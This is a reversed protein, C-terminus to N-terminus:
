DNGEGWIALKEGCRELIMDPIRPGPSCGPIHITEPHNRYKEPACDGIVFYPGAKLHEEFHVDHANFGIMFTPRGNKEVIKEWLGEKEWFLAPGIFWVFCGPCMGGLIFNCPFRNYLVEVPKEIKIAIDQIDPGIVTINNRLIEGHGDLYATWPFLLENKDISLLESAISDNAVPDTAAILVGLFRPTCLDPGDGEGVIIADTFCLQEPLLKHLESVLKPLQSQHYALRTEQQIFGVWNKTAATMAGLRHTKLKAFNIIYDADLAKKPISIESLIDSHPFPVTIRENPDDINVLKGGAAKIAKGMGTALLADESPAFGASSDGVYIEEVGREKLISILASVFRPETTIGEKATSSLLLNPKIFVVGSSPIKVGADELNQVAEKVMRYFAMHNYSLTQSRVVTVISPTASRERELGKTM